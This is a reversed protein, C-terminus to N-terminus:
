RPHVGPPASWGLLTELGGLFCRGTQEWTQLGAALCRSTRAAAERRAPDRILEELRNRFAQTDGAPVLLGEGVWEPLAGSGFAVCPLGCRIAEAVSIGFGEYSSPFVFIDADAYERALAGMSIEGTFVVRKELGQERILRGLRRLYRRHSARGVLRLEWSLEKLGALQQLLLHHGKRPIINGTLLLRPARSGVAGSAGNKTGGPEGKDAPPLVFSDSGPPCIVIRRGTDLLARVSAATTRSNVMVMDAASLLRRELRAALARPLPPSQESVALEDVVLADYGSARRFLRRLRPRLANLRCVPYRLRRLGLVDVSIGHARLYATVERDYLYGGSVQTISGYIILLLKM